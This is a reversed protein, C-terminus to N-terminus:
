GPPHNWRLWFAAMAGVAKRYAEADAPKVVYGNAGREYAARIVEPVASSSFMVVPIWRTEDADRIRKLVECGEMGPLGSDLLILSPWRRVPDGKRWEEVARLGEPGDRAEIVDAGWERIEACAFARDSPDDEIVLVSTEAM